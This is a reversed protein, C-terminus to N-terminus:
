TRMGAPPRRTGNRGGPRRTLREASEDDAPRPPVGLKDGLRALGPDSLFPLPQRPLDVVDEGLAQGPDDGLQLRGVEGALPVSAAGLHVAM